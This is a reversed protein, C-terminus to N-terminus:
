GVDVDGDAAGDAGGALHQVDEVLAHALGQVAAAGELDVPEDVIGDGDADIFDSM